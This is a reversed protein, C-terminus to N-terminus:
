ENIKKKNYFLEDIENGSFYIIETKNTDLDPFNEINTFDNAQIYKLNPLNILDRIDFLVNCLTLGHLNEIKSLEKLSIKPIPDMHTLIHITELNPVNAICSIVEQSPDILVLEKLKTLFSLDCTEIKNDEGYFFSYFSISLTEVNPFSKFFNLDYIDMSKLSSINPLVKSSFFKTKIGGHSDGVLDIEKLNELKLLPAMDCDELFSDHIGLLWIHKLEEVNALEKLNKMANFAQRDLGFDDASHVDFVDRPYEELDIFEDEYESKAQETYILALKKQKIEEETLENNKIKENYEEVEKEWNKRALKRYLGLENKVIKSM